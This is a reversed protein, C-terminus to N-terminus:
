LVLSALVYFFLGSGLGIALAEWQCRPTPIVTFLERKIEEWM